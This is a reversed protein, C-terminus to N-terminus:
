VSVFRRSNSFSIPFRLPCASASFHLFIGSQLMIKFLIVAVAVLAAQATHQLPKAKGVIIEVALHILKGASLFCAHM